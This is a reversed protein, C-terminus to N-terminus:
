GREFSVRIGEDGVHLTVPLGLLGLTDRTSRPGRVHVVAGKQSGSTLAIEISVADDALEEVDVVLGDYSGHALEDM